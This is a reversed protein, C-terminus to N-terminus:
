TNLVVCFFIILSKASLDQHYYGFPQHWVESAIHWHEEVSLELDPNLSELIIKSLGWVSVM